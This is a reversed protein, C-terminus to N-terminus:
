VGQPEDRGTMLYRQHVSEPAGKRTRIMGYGNISPSMM